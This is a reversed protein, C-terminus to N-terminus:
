QGEALQWEALGLQPKGNYETVKCKTVRVPTGPSAWDPASGWAQGIAQIGAEVDALTVDQVPGKKTTREAIHTITADFAVYSGPAAKLAEALSVVKLAGGKAAATGQKFDARGGAASRQFGLAELQSWEMGKVGLVSAIVRATWNSIAKKKVDALLAERARRRDGGCATLHKGLASGPKVNGHDDQAAYFPDLSSCDGLDWWRMGTFPWIAAGSVEVYCDDDIWNVEVHPQMLQIGIRSAIRLAGTGQLWPRGGFDVFDQPYARRLCLEQIRQVASSVKDITQVYRDVEEPTMRALQADLSRPEDQPETTIIDSM